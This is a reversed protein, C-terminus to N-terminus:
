ISYQDYLGGFTIGRDNVGNSAAGQDKKEASLNGFDTANSPTSITVFQIQDSVNSPGQDGGVMIGRQGPPQTPRSGTPLQLASTTDEFVDVPVHDANDIKANALSTGKGEFYEASMSYHSSGSLDMLTQVELSGSVNFSGTVSHVDDITDGFVSLGNGISSSYNPQGTADVIISGANLQNTVTINAFTPNGTTGVNQGGVSAHIHKINGQLSREYLDEHEAPADVRRSSELFDSASVAAPVSSSLENGTNGPSKDKFVWAM